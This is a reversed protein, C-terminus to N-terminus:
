FKFVMPAPLMDTKNVLKNGTDTRMPRAGFQDWYFDTIHYHTLSRIYGMTKLSSHADSDGALKDLCLNSAPGKLTGSKTPRPRPGLIQMDGLNGPSASCAPTPIVSQSLSTGAM